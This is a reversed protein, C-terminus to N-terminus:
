AGGFVYAVGAVMVGAYVAAAVDDLMIGWGGPVYFDVESIPWPKAIDFARFLLFGALMWRWDLPVFAVTLWYGFMEDWVIGPHDAVGLRRSVRACLWVGLLFLLGLLFVLTLASQLKLWVAIPVAVLTGATGPALPALGAGFGFALFGDPTSLAERRAEGALADEREM